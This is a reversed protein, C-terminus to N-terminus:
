PKPHHQPTLPSSTKAEEDSEVPLPHFMMLQM